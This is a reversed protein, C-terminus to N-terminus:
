GARVRDRRLLVGREEVGRGAPTARAALEADRGIFDAMSFPM